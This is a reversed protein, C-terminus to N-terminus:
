MPPTANESKRAFRANEHNTAYRAFTLMRRPADEGFPMKGEMGRSAEFHANRMTNASDIAFGQLDLLPARRPAIGGAIRM